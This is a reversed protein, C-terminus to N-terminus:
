RGERPLGSDLSECWERAICEERLRACATKPKKV